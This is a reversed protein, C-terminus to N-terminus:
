VIRYPRDPGTARDKHIARQQCYGGNNAMVDPRAMPTAGVTYNIEDEYPRGPPDGQKRPDGAEGAKAAGVNDSLFIIGHFHNPMVVFEDIIVNKRVTDTREWEEVVIRGMDNLVMEGNVIEGFLCERQWACITIFYAGAQAYDFDKLRISHRHHIDPTYSM